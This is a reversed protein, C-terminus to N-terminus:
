KCTFFALHFVLYKAMIVDNGRRLSGLPDRVPSIKGRRADFLLFFTIAKSSGNDNLYVLDNKHFVFLFSVLM